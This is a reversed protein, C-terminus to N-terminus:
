EQQCLFASVDSQIVPRDDSGSVDDSRGYLAALHTLKNGGQITQFISILVPQATKCYKARALAIQQHININAKGQICQLHNVETVGSIRRIHYLHSSVTIEKHM